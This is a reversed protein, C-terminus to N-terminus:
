SGGSVAHASGTSSGSSSGLGLFSQFPDTTTASGTGTSSDSTSGIGSGSNSTNTGSTTAVMKGPDSLAALTSFALTAAAGLLTAGVTVSRLRETARNRDAPTLRQATTM